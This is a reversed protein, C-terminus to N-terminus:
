PEVWIIMNVVIRPTASLMRMHDVKSIWPIEQQICLFSSSSSMNSCLLGPRSDKDWLVSHSGFVRVRIKKSYCQHHIPDMLIGSATANPEHIKIINYCFQASGEITADSM